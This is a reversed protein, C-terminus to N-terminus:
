QKKIEKERVRGLNRGTGVMVREGGWVVSNEGV